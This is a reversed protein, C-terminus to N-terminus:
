ATKQQDARRRWLPSCLIKCRLSPSGCVLCCRTLKTVTIDRSIRNAALVAAFDDVLIVIAIARLADTCADVVCAPDCIKESEARKQQEAGDTKERNGRAQQKGDSVVRNGDLRRLDKGALPDGRVRTQPALQLELADRNRNGRQAVFLQDKDSRREDGREDAVRRIQKQQLLRHILDQALVGSEVTHFHRRVVFVPDNGSHHDVVQALQTESLSGNVYVGGKEFEGFSKALPTVLADLQCVPARSFEFDVAAGEAADTFLVRLSVEIIHEVRKRAQQVGEAPRM